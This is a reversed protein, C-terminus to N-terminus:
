LHTLPMLGNLQALKAEDALGYRSFYIETSESM